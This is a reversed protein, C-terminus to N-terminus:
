HAVQAALLRWQGPVGKLEHEGREDFEIGSGAVLDKVTGSTLIEGTGARQCIRSAIHVTLGTLKGGSEQCEGTHVGARVLIGAGALANRITGACRIAQAPTDFAVLFGDGATDVERGRTRALERRVITHHRTLLDRWSRDGLSAALETSGVIDTFLITALVSQSQSREVAREAEVVLAAAGLRRAIELAERAAAAGSDPTGSRWQVDSQGILSEVVRAPSPMAGYRAVADAFARLAGEDDGSASLLHAQCLTLSARNHANSDRETLDAIRGVWDALEGVRGERALAGALDPAFAWHSGAARANISNALAAEFGPLAADVGEEILTQRARAGLAPTSRQSEAVGRALSWLQDVLQGARPDGHRQAIEALATLAVVQTPIPGTELLPEALLRAEDYDGTLSLLWALGAHSYRDTPAIQECLDLAARMSARSGEFDGCWIAVYAANSRVNYEARPARAAKATEVALAYSERFAPGYFQMMMQTGYLGSLAALNGSREALRLAEPLRETVEDYQDGLMLIRTLRRLVWAEQYDDRGHVLSLGERLLAIAAPGDGALWRENELVLIARAEAVPDSLEAALQRAEAAFVLRIRPIDVADGDGAAALLVELRRPDDGPMLRLAQDYRRDAEDQAFAASARRAARLAFELAASHDAAAAYHDALGAAVSDLDGAHVRVMAEALARHARRRDPGVFEDAFAERSLAHRFSYRTVDGDRREALLQLRLAERVADEVRDASAGTAEALVALDLDQDALAAMELVVVSTGDMTRARALLTERVSLPLQIESLEKREWDDAGQFVDGREVLVKALEEVFFPNGGTRELLLEAFDDGVETDDFIASLMSKLQTIDLPALSIEDYRRERGLETLLATLPHRRHLEDSRCTGVIWLPLDDLERALYSLLRLSDEDAWHLDELVLLGAHPRALRGLLQWVAAFLDDPAPTTAPLGIADVVEPLLAAALAAPGDFLATLGGRDLSRTRRRIATVFVAYPVSADPRCQGLLRSLGAEEALSSAETVLRSKGVGAEGLVLTLRGRGTRRVDDRTQELVFMERDRGVHVPCVVSQSLVAGM